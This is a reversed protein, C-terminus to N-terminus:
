YYTYREVWGIKYNGNRPGDLGDPFEDRRHRRIMYKRTEDYLFILISYPCSPLWHVFLVDRTKLAPHIVSVYALLACLCTETFLGFLMFNNNMGQHYISLIRTKCILLDAWQVIVISIFAATQAHRLAEAGKYCPNKGQFEAGPFKCEKQPKLAGYECGWTFPWNEDFKSGIKHSPCADAIEQASLRANLKAYEKSSTDLMGNVIPVAYDEEAYKADMGGGCPCDDRIDKSDTPYEEIYLAAGPIDGIQFGYDNLVVFFSYFGALAQFIGIQLYSFSVLKATVLHDEKSDRPPRRMIDSEAREYALSIAPIM